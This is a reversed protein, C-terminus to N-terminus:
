PSVIDTFKVLEVYVEGQDGPKLCLKGYKEQMFNNRNEERKKVKDKSPCKVHGVSLYDSYIRQRRLSTSDAYFIQCEEHSMEKTKVKKFEM